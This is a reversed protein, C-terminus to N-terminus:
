IEVPQREWLGALLIKPVLSFLKIHSAGTFVHRSAAQNIQTCYHGISGNNYYFVSSPTFPLISNTL